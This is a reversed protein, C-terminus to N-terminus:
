RPALEAPLTAPAASSVVAFEVASTGEAGGLNAPPEFTWLGSALTDPIAGILWGCGDRPLRPPDVWGLTVAIAPGGALPILRGTYSAAAGEKARCAYAMMSAVEGPSVIEDLSPLRVVAEGMRVFRDSMFWPSAEGPGPPKPVSFFKRVSASVGEADATVTLDM